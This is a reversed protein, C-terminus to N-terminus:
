CAWLSARAPKAQHNSRTNLFNATVLGMPAWSWVTVWSANSSEAPVVTSGTILTANDSGVCASLFMALSVLAVRTRMLLTHMNIM